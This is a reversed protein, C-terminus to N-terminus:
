AYPQAGYAALPLDLLEVGISALDAELQRRVLRSLRSGPPTAGPAPNCVVVPHGLGRLDVVARVFREDDLPSIALITAERPIVSRPILSITKDAVSPYERTRLLLDAIAREQLWGTGPNLWGITGGFIILSLRDLARLHARALNAALRIVETTRPGQFTDVLLVVDIPLDTARQNLWFRGTRAVLKWNVDVLIDHPGAERVDLFELGATSPTRSRHRGIGFRPRALRALADLDAITPFVEVPTALLVRRRTSLLGFLGRVEVSTQDFHWLGFREPTTDFELIGSAPIEIVRPPGPRLSDGLALWGHHPAPAPEIVLKLLLPDGEFSESRQCTLATTDIRPPFLTAVALGLLVPLAAALGFPHGLSAAVTAIIAVGIWAGLVSTPRPNM